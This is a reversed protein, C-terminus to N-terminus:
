ERALGEDSRVLSNYTTHNASSGSKITHVLLM